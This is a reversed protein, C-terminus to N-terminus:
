YHSNLWALVEAKCSDCFIEDLKRTTIDDWPIAEGTWDNDMICWGPRQNVEETHDDNNCRGAFKCKEGIMECYHDRAGYQHALEHILTIVDGDERSM